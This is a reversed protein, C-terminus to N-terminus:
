LLFILFFIFILYYFGQGANRSEHGNDTESNGSADTTTTTTESHGTESFGPAKAAQEDDLLEDDDGLNENSLIEDDDHDRESHDPGRRISEQGGDNLTELKGHADSNRTEDMNDPGRRPRNLINFEREVAEYADAKMLHFFVM